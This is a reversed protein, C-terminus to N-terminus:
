QLPIFVGIYVGVTNNKSSFRDYQDDQSPTVTKKTSLPYFWEAPYGHAKIIAPDYIVNKSEIDMLSRDYRAGVALGWYQSVFINVQFGAAWEFDVSNFFKRFNMPHATMWAPPPPSTSVDQVASLYAIQFGAYVSFDFINDEEKGSNFRFLLPLKVYNLLVQSTYHINTLPSNGTTDNGDKYVAGSYKQGQMSYILGTQLGFYNHFNYIYDVGFMPRITEVLNVQDVSTGGYYSEQSNNIQTSQGGGWVQIFKGQQAHANLGIIFASLFCIRKLM